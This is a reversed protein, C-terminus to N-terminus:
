KSEPLFIFQGTLLGVFVLRASLDSMWKIGLGASSILALFGLAAVTLWLSGVARRIRNGSLVGAVTICAAILGIIAEMMPGQGTIFVKGIIILCVIGVSGWLGITGVTGFWRMEKKYEDM